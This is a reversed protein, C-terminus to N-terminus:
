FLTTWLPCSLFRFLNFGIFLRVSSFFVNGVLRLIICIPIHYSRLVQVVVRFPSVFYFGLPFLVLARIGLLSFFCFYNEFYYFTFYFSFFPDSSVFEYFSLHGESEEEQERCSVDVIAVFKWEFEAGEAGGWTAADHPSTPYPSTM